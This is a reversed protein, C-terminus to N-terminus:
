LYSLWWDRRRGKVGAYWRCLPYILLVGAIWFAYVTLLGFGTGPPPPPSVALNSFFYETPKGVIMSAFLPLAHAVIWQLLYFFLPVRGFTIFFRSIAGSDKGDAWALFLLGPGLTM